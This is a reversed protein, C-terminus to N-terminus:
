LLKKNIPFREMRVSYSPFLDEIHVLDHDRLTVPRNKVLVVGLAGDFVYAPSKLRFEGGFQIQFAYGRRQENGAIGSQVVVQVAYLTGDSEVHRSQAPALGLHDMGQGFPFPQGQLPVIEIRALAKVRIHVGDAAVLFQVVHMGQVHVLPVPLLDDRPIVPIQVKEAQGDPGDYPRDAGRGLGHPGSIGLERHPKIGVDSEDCRLFQFVEIRVPRGALPLVQEHPLVTGGEDHLDASSETGSLRVVPPGRVVVVPLEVSVQEEPVIRQVTGQLDGGHADSHILLGQGPLKRDGAAVVAPRKGEM